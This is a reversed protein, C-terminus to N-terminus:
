NPTVLPILYVVKFVTLSLTLAGGAIMLYRNM